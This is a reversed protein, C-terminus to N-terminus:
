QGAEHENLDYLHIPNWRNVQAFLNLHLPLDKQTPDVRDTASFMHNSM